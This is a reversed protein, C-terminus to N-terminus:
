SHSLELTKLLDDFFLLFKFLFEFDDNGLDFFVGFELIDDQSLSEIAQLLFKLLLHRNIIKLSAWSLWIIRCLLM